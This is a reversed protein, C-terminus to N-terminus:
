REGACCFRRSGSSQPFSERYFLCRFGTVLQGVGPVADVQPIGGGIGAAAPHPATDGMGQRGRGVLAHEAEHFQVLLGIARGNGAAQGGLLVTTDAIM